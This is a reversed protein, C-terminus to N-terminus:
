KKKYIKSRLSPFCELNQDLIRFASASRGLDTCYM